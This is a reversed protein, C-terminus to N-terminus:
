SNYVVVSVVPGSCRRGGSSFMATNQTFTNSNFRLSKRREHLMPDLDHRTRSEYLQSLVSSQNQQVALFCRKASFFQHRGPFLGASISWIFVSTFPINPLPSNNTFPIHLLLPIPSLNPPLSQLHNFCPRLLSCNTICYCCPFLEWWQTQFDFLFCLFSCCMHLNPRNM